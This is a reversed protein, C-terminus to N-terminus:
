HKRTEQKISVLNIKRITESITMQQILQTLFLPKILSKLVKNNM